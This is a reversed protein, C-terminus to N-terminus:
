DGLHKYLVSTQSIVIITKTRIHTKHTLAITNLAVKFFIETTDHHDTVCLFGSVFKILYHQISYLEGYAPNPRTHEILLFGVLVLHM